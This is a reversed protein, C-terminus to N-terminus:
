NSNEDFTHVYAVASVFIGFVHSHISHTLWEITMLMKQPSFFFFLVGFMIM